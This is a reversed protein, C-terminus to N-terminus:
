RRGRGKLVAGGRLGELSMSRRVGVGDGMLGLKERPTGPRFVKAKPVRVRGMVVVGWGWYRPPALAECGEGWPPPKRLLNM